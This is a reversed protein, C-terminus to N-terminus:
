RCGQHPRACILTDYMEALSLTGAGQLLPTLRYNKAIWSLGHPEIIVIHGRTGRQGNLCSKEM